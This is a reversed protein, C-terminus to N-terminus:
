KVTITVTTSRGAADRAEVRHTGSVIPWRVDAGDDSRGIVTGAVRWEVPGRAGRARLSLTQFEPRLTPDRLFTAGALPSVIELEGSSTAADRSVASDSRSTAAASSRRTDPGLPSVPTMSVEHSRAWARYQEPWLTVIEAGTHRHWTCDGLHADTPLWETVRRLCATGPTLGSVACVPRQQVGVTPGLVPTRDGLPLAGRVREVAALMVDHFIPGAGTVGSSGVLPKRDFNGVWVGVTVERTFGIAWNDHYAQSTGTKAAVTFPFELSGGRGFIFARAEDDALIDAVWFATRASLLRREERAPGPVLVASARGSTGGASAPVIQGTTQDPGPVAGSMLMTPSATVGGRALMSYAVVLDALRVEANGLTIGLGYHASNADLTSIGADRLLRLVAPVGIDHALAVAPVNESGALAARALMPGRFQDDYNRPAYLIGPEATPFQSPVDALVRAPHYGREFAAAYTFPKLASGPQRPAVAGDIAGGHDADFYNGSGEWALWEGTRNDLVVVAVNHAQHRGRLEERRADIIGRVHRQLTADLTSVVREPRPTAPDLAGLVREVFHPALSQPQERQLLVREARAIRYDAATLRHLVRMRDLIHQRRREFRTMVLENPQSPEPQSSPQVTAAGASTRSPGASAAAGPGAAAVHGAGSRGAASRSPGASPEKWPNFRSPQQPLAALYAAEAATLTSTPRGFYARSAREVGRIQNGYPALNVYMALIERKSYRHELRFAIVAERAKARWGRGSAPGEARGILLKAVQQTITSGGEVVRGARVNRWLARSTALPDIGPHSYFRADEAALTASEVLAPIADPGLDEGRVGSASRSEFLVEGHRDLVTTSAGAQLARADFLHDPLPGCRLWVLAAVSAVLAWLWRRRRLVVARLTMVIEAARRFSWNGTRDM